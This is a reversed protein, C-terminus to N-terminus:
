QSAFEFANMMQEANEFNTVHMNYRVDERSLLNGLIKEAQVPAWIQGRKNVRVVMSILPFCCDETLLFSDNDRRNLAYKGIRAEKSLKDELAYKSCQTIFICVTIASM